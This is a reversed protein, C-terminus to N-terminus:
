QKGGVREFLRELKDLEPHKYIWMGTSPDFEGAFFDDLAAHGTSTWPNITLCVADFTHDDVLSVAKFEYAYAWLSVMIRNRREVEIESGWM